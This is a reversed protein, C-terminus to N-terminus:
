SEGETTRLAPVRLRVELGGGDPLALRLGGGATALLESTIALGLGSGRVTSHGPSRWFREALRELQDPPVGAGHDRVVVEV